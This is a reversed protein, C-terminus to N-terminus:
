LKVATPDIFSQEAIPVTNLLEHYGGATWDLKYYPKNQRLVCELVTAHLPARDGIQLVVIDGPKYKHRM